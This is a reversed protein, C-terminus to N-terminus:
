CNAALPTSWYPFGILPIVNVNALLLWLAAVMLAAPNAVPAPPGVPPILVMVAEDCPILALVVSVVVLGADVNVVIATVGNVAVTGAPLEVDNATM